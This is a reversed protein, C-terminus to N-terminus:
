LSMSSINDNGLLANFLLKFNTYSQARNHVNFGFLIINGKEFPVELIAARDKLIDEGHIWGSILLTENPYYAVINPTVKAYKKLTQKKQASRTANDPSRKEEQMETIVTDKIIDFALGGSFFAMGRKEMGFALPHDTDYFMKLISGPCNFSDSRVGRLVNKLPLNFYEIALGCSSKNCVLTGGEDVFERLHAVGDLTIGGVYDPPMTGKRHGNVISRSGQDPLVIVDFRNRLDGAKVEADTLFSYPFGYRELILSIWGADMNAVWSKYLGIRPPSVRQLRANVRGGRLEAGSEVAINGLEDEDISNARALFSGRKYSEGGVTFDEQAVNVTGGASFIRNLVIYSGNDEHSFVYHPGRGRLGGLTAPVEEVLTMSLDLVDSM